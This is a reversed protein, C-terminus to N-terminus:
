PVLRELVGGGFAEGIGQALAVAFVFAAVVLSGVVFRALDTM